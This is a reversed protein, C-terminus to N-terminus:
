ASHLLPYDPSIERGIPLSVTIEQNNGGAFDVRYELLNLAPFMKLLQPFDQPRMMLDLCPAGEDGYRKERLFLRVHSAEPVLSQFKAMTAQMASINSLVSYQRKKQFTKLESEVEQAAQWLFEWSWAAASVCSSMVSLLREFTDKRLQDQNLDRQLGETEEKLRRLTYAWDRFANNFFYLPSNVIDKGLSELEGLVQMWQQRFNVMEPNDLNWINFAMAWQRLFADKEQQSVVDEEYYGRRESIEYFGPSVARVNEKVDRMEVWEKAQDVSLQQPQELAGQNSSWFAFRQSSNKAQLLRMEPHAKKRQEFEQQVTVRHRFYEIISQVSGDKLMILVGVPIALGRLEQSDDSLPVWVPPKHQPDDSQIYKLRYDQDHFRVSILDDDISKVVFAAEDVVMRKLLPWWYEYAAVGQNVDGSPSVHAMLSGTLHWAKVMDEMTPPQHVGHSLWFSFVENARPDHNGILPEVSAPHDDQYPALMFTRPVRKQDPDEGVPDLKHEYSVVRYALQLREVVRKQLSDRVHTGSSLLWPAVARDYAELIFDKEFLFGRATPTLGLLVYPDTEHLISAAAESMGTSLASSSETKAAFAQALTRARRPESLKIQGAAEDLEAMLGPMVMFDRQSVDVLMEWSNQSGTLVQGNRLVRVSEILHGFSQHRQLSEQLASGQDLVLDPQKDRLLHWYGQDDILVKYEGFSLNPAVVVPQFINMAVDSTPDLKCWTYRPSEQPKDKSVHGLWPSAVRIERGSEQQPADVWLFQDAHRDFLDKASIIHTDMAWVYYVRALQQVIATRFLPADWSSEFIQINFDDMAVLDKDSVRPDIAKQALSYLHYLVHKATTKPWIDEKREFLATLQEKLKPLDGQFVAPMLDKLFAAVIDQNVHDAKYYQITEVGNLVRGDILGRSGKWQQTKDPLQFTGYIQPAKLRAMLDLFADRYADDTMTKHLQSWPAKALLDSIAYTKGEFVVVPCDGQLQLKAEPSGQLFAIMAEKSYKAELGSQPALANAVYSMGVCVLCLLLKRFLSM